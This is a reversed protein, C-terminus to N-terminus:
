SPLIIAEHPESLVTLIQSAWFDVAKTLRESSGTTTKWVLCVGSIDALNVELFTSLTIPVKAVSHYQCIKAIFKLYIM